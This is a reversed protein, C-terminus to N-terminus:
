EGAALRAAIGPRVQCTVRIDRSGRGGDDLTAFLDAEVVEVDADDVGEDVLRAELLERTRAAARELTLDRGVRESHDLSPVNLIGRGTDAYAELVATPVALAAGIANAVEFHAPISVPLGLATELHERM